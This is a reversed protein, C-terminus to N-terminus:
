RRTARAKFWRLTWLRDSTRNYAADADATMEDYTRRAAEHAEDLAARLGPEIAALDAIEREVLADRRAVRGAREGM